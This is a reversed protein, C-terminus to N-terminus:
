YTHSEPGLASTLRPVNRPPSGALRLLLGSFSQRRHIQSVTNRTLLCEVPLGGNTSISLCVQMSPKTKTGVSRLHYEYSSVENRWIGSPREDNVPCKEEYSYLVDNCDNGNWLMLDARRKSYWTRQYWLVRSLLAASM